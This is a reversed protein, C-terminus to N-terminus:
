NGSIYGKIDNLGETLANYVEYYYSQDSDEGQQKTHLAELDTRIQELEETLEKIREKQFKRDPSRNRNYSM